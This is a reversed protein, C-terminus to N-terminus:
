PRRKRHGRLASRMRQEIRRELRSLTLTARLARPAGIAGVLATARAVELEDARRKHAFLEELSTRAKAEDSGEAARRARERVARGERRLAMRQHAFDRVISEVAARERADLSLESALRDVQLAISRERIQQRLEASSPSPRDARAPAAIVVSLFTFLLSLIIRM